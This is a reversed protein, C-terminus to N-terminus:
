DVDDSHLIPRSLGFRRCPRGDASYRMGREKLYASVAQTKPGGPMASHKPPLPIINYKSLTKQDKPKSHTPERSVAADTELGGQHLSLPLRDRLDRPTFLIAATLSLAANMM